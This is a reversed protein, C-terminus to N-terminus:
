VCDGTFSTIVSRKQVRMNHLIHLYCYRLLVVPKLACQNAWHVDAPSASEGPMSCLLLQRAYASTTAAASAGAGAPVSGDKVQDDCTPRPTEGGGDVSEGGGTDLPEDDMDDLDEEDDEDDEDDGEDGGTPREQENNDGGITTTTTTTTLRAKVEQEDEENLENPEHEESRVSEASDTDLLEYTITATSHLQFMHM